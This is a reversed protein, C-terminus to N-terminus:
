KAPPTRLEVPAILQTLYTWLRETGAPLVRLLSSARDERWLLFLQGSGIVITLARLPDRQAAPTEKWCALSYTHQIHQVAVALATATQAPLSRSLLTRARNPDTRVLELAQLCDDAKMEGDPVQAPTEVTPPMIIARLRQLLEERSAMVLYHQVGPEPECQEVIVAKGFLYLCQTAPRGTEMIDLFLTYQPRACDQLVTGIVPAIERQTEGRWAVLGRARLTRDAEMMVRSKEANTLPKLSDPALGPFDNIGLARLLYVMEENAFRLLIGEAM